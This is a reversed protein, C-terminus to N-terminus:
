EFHRDIPPNEAQRRLTWEHAAKEFIAASVAVALNYQYRLRAAIAPNRFLAACDNARVEGTEPSYTWPKGSNDFIWMSSWAAVNYLRQQISLPTTADLPGPTKVFRAVMEPDYLAHARPYTDRGFTGRDYASTDPKAGYANMVDAANEYDPHCNEITIRTHQPVTMDQAMHLTMGLQDLDRPLGTLESREYQRYMRTTGFVSSVLPMTDGWGQTLNETAPPSALMARYALEAPVDAPPYTVKEAGIGPRYIREWDAETGRFGLKYPGLNAGYLKHAPNSGGLPRSLETRVDLSVDNWESDYGRRTSRAYSYGDHNWWVGKRTIDIYHYLTTFSGVVKGDTGGMFDPHFWAKLWTDPRYDVDIVARALLDELEGPPAADLWRATEPFAHEGGRLYAIADRTIRDHSFPGYAGASSSLLIGALAFAWSAKSAKQSM